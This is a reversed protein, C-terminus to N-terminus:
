LILFVRLHHLRRKNNSNDRVTCEFLVVFHIFVVSVCYLRLLAVASLQLDAQATIPQITSRLIEHKHSIDICSFLM